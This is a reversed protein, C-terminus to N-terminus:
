PHMKNQYIKIYHYLVKILEKNHILDDKDDEVSERVQKKQKMIKESIENALEYISEQISNGGFEAADGLSIISEERIDTDEHDNRIISMLSEVPKEWYGEIQMKILKIAQIRAKKEGNEIIKLLPGFITKQKNMSFSILSLAQLTYLQVDETFDSELILDIENICRSSLSKYKTGLKGFTRCLVKNIKKTPFELHIKQLIMFSEDKYHWMKENVKDILGILEILIDEKTEMNLNKFLDDMSLELNLNPKSMDLLCEILETLQPNKENELEESSLLHHYSEIMLNVKMLNNATNKDTIKFQQNQINKEFEEVTQNGGLQNKNQSERRKKLKFM